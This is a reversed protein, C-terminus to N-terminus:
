GLVEQHEKHHLCLTRPQGKERTCAPDNCLNCSAEEKSIESSDESEMEQERTAVADNVEVEEEIATSVEQQEIGSALDSKEEQPEVINLPEAEKEEATELSQHFQNLALAPRPIVLSSVVTGINSASMKGAAVAAQVAGVDGEIKVTVMGPTVTEYGVFRVNAAKLSADAAELAPVLGIVEILGLAEQKM